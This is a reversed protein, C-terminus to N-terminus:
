GSTVSLADHQEVRELLPALTAKLVDASTVEPLPRGLTIIRELKPYKDGDDWAATPNEFLIGDDRRQHVYGHWRGWWGREWDTDGWDKTNFLATGATLLCESLPPDYEGHRDWFFISVFCLARKYRTSTYYRVVESPMWKFPEVHTQGSEWICMNGSWMAFNRERMIADASRLLLAAQEHVERVYHIAGLITPRENVISVEV